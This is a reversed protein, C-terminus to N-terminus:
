ELIVKVVAQRQMVTLRLFYVGAPLRRGRQDLAQWELQRTGGALTGRGVQRGAIDSVTLVGQQGQPVVCRLLARGRVPNATLALQSVNGGPQEAVGPFADAFVSVAISSSKAMFVRNHTSDWAACRFLGVDGLVATVSDNLCNVVTVESGGSLYLKDNTQNVIATYHARLEFSDVIAGSACDFVYVRPSTASNRCLYLRNTARNWLISDIDRGPRLSDIRQGSTANWEYLYNSSSNYFYLHGNTPNAFLRGDTCIDGASLTEAATDARVDITRIVPASDFAV